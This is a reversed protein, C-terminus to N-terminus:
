GTDACSLRRDHEGPPVAPPRGSSSVTPAVVPPPAPPPIPSVAKELPAAAPPAITVVLPPAPGNARRSWVAFGALGAVVLAALIGGAIM